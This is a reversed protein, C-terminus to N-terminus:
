GSYHTKNARRDIVLLMPPLRNKAAGARNLQGLKKTRLQSFAVRARIYDNHLKGPLPFVGLIRFCFCVGRKEARAVKTGLPSHSRKLTSSM